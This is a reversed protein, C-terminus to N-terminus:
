GYPGVRERCAERGLPGPRGSRLHAFAQQHTTFLRQAQEDTDAVVVNMALMAHPRSRRLSPKFQARYLALAQELMAPAFHSAFAYPLGLAASRFLTTYPFLTDTRTSRPPRRIM